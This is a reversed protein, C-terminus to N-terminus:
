RGAGGERGCNRAYIGGWEGGRKQEWRYMAASDVDLVNMGATRRVKSSPMGFEDTDQQQAQQAQAQRKKKAAKELREKEAPPKERLARDGMKTNKMRGWLTEPEGSPEHQDRTRNESTLVLTSNQLTNCSAHTRTPALCSSAHIFCAGGLGPSSAGIGLM